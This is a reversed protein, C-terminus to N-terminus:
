IMVALKMISPRKGIWTGVPKLIHIKQTIIISIFSKYALNDNSVLLINWSFMNEGHPNFKHRTNIITSAFAQCGLVKSHNYLPKTKLLLEFLTKYNLNPSPIRNIFYVVIRYLWKLMENWLWESVKPDLLM